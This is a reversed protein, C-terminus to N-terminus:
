SFFKSIFIISQDPDYQGKPNTAGFVITRTSLTTVLGAQFIFSVFAKLLGVLALCVIFIKHIMLSSVHLFLIQLFLYLFM